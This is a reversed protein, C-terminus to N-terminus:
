LAFNISIGALEPVKKKKISEAKCPLMLHNYILPYYWGETYCNTHYSALWIQPDELDFLTQLTIRSSAKKLDKYFFLFFETSCAHNIFYIHISKGSNFAM